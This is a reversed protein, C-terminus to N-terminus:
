IEPVVNGQMAANGCPGSTPSVASKPAKRLRALFVWPFAPRNVKFAGHEHEM